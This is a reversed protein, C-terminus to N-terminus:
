SYESIAFISFKWLWLIKSMKGRVALNGKGQRGVSLALEGASYLCLNFRGAKLSGKVTKNEMQMYDQVWLGAETEGEQEM